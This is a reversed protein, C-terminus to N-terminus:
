RGEVLVLDRGNDGVTVKTPGCTVGLAEALEKTTFTVPRKLRRALEGAEAPRKAALILVEAKPDDAIEREWPIDDSGGDLRVFVFTRSRFQSPLPERLAVSRKASSRCRPLGADYRLELAGMAQAKQGALAKELDRKVGEYGRAVADLDVRQSSGRDLDAHRCIKLNGAVGSGNAWAFLAFAVAFFAIPVLIPAVHRRV